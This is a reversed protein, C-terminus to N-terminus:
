GLGLRAREGERVDCSVKSVKEERRKERGSAVVAASSVATPANM